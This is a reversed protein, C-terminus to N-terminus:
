GRTGGGTRRGAARRPAAGARGPSRRASLRGAGAAPTECRQRLARNEAALAKSVARRIWPRLLLALLGGAELRLRNHTGPGDPALEHTARMWLGARRTEWVFRREPEVTLVTWDAPPRGPQALRAVSGPVLAGGGLRRVSTVTPLWEPWREIDLTVAWVTAPAAAIDIGHEILM